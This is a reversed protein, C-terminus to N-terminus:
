TEDMPQPANAAAAAAAAEREAVLRNALEWQDKRNAKTKEFNRQEIQLEAKLDDDLKCAKCFSKIVAKKRREGQGNEDTWLPRLLRISEVDQFRTIVVFLGARRLGQPPVALDIVWIEDNKFTM